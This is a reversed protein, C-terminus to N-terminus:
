PAPFPRPIPTWPHFSNGCLAVAPCCWVVNLVARRGIHIAFLLAEHDDDLARRRVVRKNPAGVRVLFSWRHNPILRERLFAPTSQQLPAAVHRAQHQWTQEMVILSVDSMKM